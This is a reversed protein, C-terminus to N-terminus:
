LTPVTDSKSFSPAEMVAYDEASKKIKKKEKKEIIIVEKKNNITSIRHKM